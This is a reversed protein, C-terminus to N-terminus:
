ITIKIWLGKKHPEFSVARWEHMVDMGLLGHPCDLKEVFPAKELKSSWAIVPNKRSSKIPDLLSIRVSHIYSDSLGGIGQVADKLVQVHPHTNCHGFLEAFSAPFCSEDAGTDLLMPAYFGKKSLLCEVGVIITPKGELGPYCYTV